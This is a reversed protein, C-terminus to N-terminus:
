KVLVMVRAKAFGPASLRYLYPGSAVERGFDDRCDWVIQYFGPNQKRGPKVLQRVLRGSLNYVSLEVPTKVPLDYRIATKFRFPNPFNGWLAFKVPMAVRPMVEVPGHEDTSGDYDIAELMYEYLVDNFVRYDVWAYDRRGYSVGEPAGPVMEKTLLKWATDAYGIRGLKLLEHAMSYVATDEGASSRKSLGLTLTDLFEKKIRRYLNFGLNNQESETSWLLSDRGDGPVARFGEMQVALTVDSSLYFMTTDRIVTDLQVVLENSVTNLYLNYQYGEYLQVTDAGRQLFVYQPKMKALYSTIRFAPNHRVTDKQAPIKFKIQNNTAQVIYAGESENYGDTNLDGNSTTVPSGIGGGTFVLNGPGQVGNCISDVLAQTLNDSQLDTYLAYQLPADTTRWFTNPETFRQIHQFGQENDGTVTEITDMTWPFDVAVSSNKFKLFATIFDHMGPDGSAWGRRKPKSVTLNTSNTKGVFARLYPTIDHSITWISDRRCMQGTPYITIWTGVSCSAAGDTLKRNNIRYIFRVASSEAIQYGGYNGASWQTSMWKGDMVIMPYVFGACLGTTGTTSSDYLLNTATLSTTDATAGPANESTKLVTMEAGPWTNGRFAMVFDNSGSTGLTTGSLNKALVYQHGSGNVATEWYMRKMRTVMAAGGAFTDDIYILSSDSFNRNFGITVTNDGDNLSAFYDSNATLVTGNQYVKMNAVSTAWYNSLRVVPLCRPTSTGSLWFHATNNNDARIDYTGFTANYGRRAIAAVEEPWLDKLYLRPDDLEHRELRRPCLRAYRGM